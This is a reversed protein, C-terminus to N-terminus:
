ISIGIVVLCEFNSKIYNATNEINSIINRDIEKTWGTMELSNLKDIYENKKSYLENFKNEDIFPKVYTQFDFKIM